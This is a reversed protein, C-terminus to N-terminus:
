NIKTDFDFWSGQGTSGRLMWLHQYYHAYCLDQENEGRFAFTTM